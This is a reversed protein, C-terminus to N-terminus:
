TATAYGEDNTWQSNSGSKNTFTQTGTLTAVTSDIAIDDANATIGTGGIVNLTVAGSTGGGTMGTGATVGTIDGAAADIWDTGTATSSLIQGATGPSNNADYYADTVRISGGVHLKQTPNAAIGVNGDGRVQFYSAASTNEVLFSTDTSNTGGRIRMGYSEGTNTAADIRVSYAGVGGAVVLKATTPATTGIGVNGASTIRASETNNTFFRIPTAGQTFVFMDDNSGTTGIYGTRVGSSDRFDIFTGNTDSNNNQLRLISGDGEIHLKASPSTTGIGVNGGFPNININVAATGAANSGQLIQSSSVGQSVTLQGDSDTSSKLKLSARNNTDALNVTYSASNRSVTLQASASTTGIGVNGASNIRMREISNTNFAIPHNSITGFFGINGSSWSMRNDITGDTVRFGSSSNAFGVIDLPYGPSTTGIGVNGGNLYSVGSASLVVGAVSTEYNYIWFAPNDRRFRFRNDSGDFERTIWLDSNAVGAGANSDGSSLM